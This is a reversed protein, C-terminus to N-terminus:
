LSYLPSSHTWRCQDLDKQTCGKVFKGAMHTVYRVVSLDAPGFNLSRSLQDSEKFPLEMFGHSPFNGQQHFLGGEITKVGILRAFPERDVKIISDTAWQVGIHPIFEPLYETIKLANYLKFPFKCYTSNRKRFFSAVLQGFTISESNWSNVPIFHLRDPNLTISNDSCVEEFSMHQVPHRLNFTPLSSGIPRQNNLTFLGINSTADEENESAGADLQAPLFKFDHASFSTFGTGMPINNALAPNTPIIIRRHGPVQPFQQPPQLASTPIKCNALLDMITLPKPTQNNQMKNKSEYFQHFTIFFNIPKKM